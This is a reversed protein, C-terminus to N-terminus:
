PSGPRDETQPIYTSAHKVGHSENLRWRHPSVKQFDRDDVLAFEDSNTLPVRRMKSLINWGQMKTSFTADNKPGEISKDKRLCSM